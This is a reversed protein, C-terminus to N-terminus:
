SIWEYVCFGLFDWFGTPFDLRVISFDFHLLVGVCCKFGFDEFDLVFRWM